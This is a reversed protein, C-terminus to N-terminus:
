AAPPAETSLVEAIVAELRTLQFPKDLHPNGTSALFHQTEENVVDGTLFIVRRALDPNIKSLAQHFAEGNMGPMRFDSIVLDFPRTQLIELARLPSLCVAPQHGLAGLMESLLDAISPEDDLVLVRASVPKAPPAPAPTIDRVPAAAALTVIPFQLHFGAGGLTSRDCSIRGHHEAMIGHAISLGLGTGAGAPKTTFFPEFVRSQLEPPVGPGSDEMSILLTAPASVRTSIRLTRPAPAAAMAQIANNLLNIIVQQVQDPDASTSPLGAALDLFLEIGAAALGSRRLDAVREILTNVDVMERRAPQARAFSLFHRALKAARDCELAVKALDARTQPTMPHHAVILDLYGKIVSLPNNLEHAVGSIMQGLSSLKEAQRL